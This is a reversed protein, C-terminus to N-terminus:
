QTLMPTGITAPLTAEGTFTSMWHDLKAESFRDADAPAPDPDGEADEEGESPNSPEVSTEPVISDERYTAPAKRPRRGVTPGSFAGPRFTGNVKRASPTTEEGILTQSGSSSKRLAAISPSDIEMDNSNAVARRIEELPPQLSRSPDNQSTQSTGEDKEDIEMEFEFEEHEELIYVTVDNQDEQVDDPEIVEYESLIQLSLRSKRAKYPGGSTSASPGGFSVDNHEFDYSESRAISAHRNPDSTDAEQRPSSRKARKTTKSTGGFTRRSIGRATQPSATAKTDGEMKQMSDDFDPSHQYRASTSAAVSITYDDDDDDV